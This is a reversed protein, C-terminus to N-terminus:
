RGSGAEAAGSPVAPRLGREAGTTHWGWVDTLTTNGTPIQTCVGGVDVYKHGVIAQVDLDYALCVEEFFGTSPAPFLGNRGDMNSHIMCCDEIQVEYEIVPDFVATHDM